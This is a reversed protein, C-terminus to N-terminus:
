LLLKIGRRLFTPVSLYVELSIKKGSETDKGLRTGADAPGLVVWKRDLLRKEEWVEFRDGFCRWYKQSEM